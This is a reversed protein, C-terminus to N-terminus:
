HLAVGIIDVLKSGDYEAITLEEIAGAISVKNANVDDVLKQIVKEDQNNGIGMHPIFPIDLRMESELAGTYLADHLVFTVHPKVVNFQRLDYEQRITQIWDFDAYSIKPYAIVVYSMSSDYCVVLSGPPLRTLIIAPPGV